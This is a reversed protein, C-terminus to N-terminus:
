FFFFIGNFRRKLMTIMCDLHIEFMWILYCLFLLSQKLENQHAIKDLSIPVLQSLMQCRVAHDQPIKM